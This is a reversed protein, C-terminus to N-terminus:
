AAQYVLSWQMHTGSAVATVQAHNYSGGANVPDKSYPHITTTGYNVHIYVFNTSLQMGSSWNNIISGIHRSGSISTFPLGEISFDGGTTGSTTCGGSTFNVYVMQGIKTYRFTPSGGSYSITNNGSKLVPTWTGEEYDDLANAAPM